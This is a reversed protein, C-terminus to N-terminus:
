AQDTSKRSDVEHRWGAFRQRTGASVAKRKKNVRAAQIVWDLRKVKFVM